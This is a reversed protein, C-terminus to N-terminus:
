GAGHLPKTYCSALWSPWIGFCLRSLEWVQPKQISKKYWIYPLPDPKRDPKGGKEKIPWMYRVTSVTLPQTLKFLYFDWPLATLTVTFLLSSVRLVKTQILNLSEAETCIQSVSNFRTHKLQQIHKSLYDLGLRPRTYLHGWGRHVIACICRRVIYIYSM